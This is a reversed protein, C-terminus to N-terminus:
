FSSFRLIAILYVFAKFSETMGGTFYLKLILIKTM